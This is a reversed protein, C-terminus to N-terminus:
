IPTRGSWSRKLIEAIEHLSFSVPKEYPKGDVEWLRVLAYFCKLDFTRLIGVEVDEGHDNKVQGIVVKETGDQRELVRSKQPANSTSFIPWSEINREPRILERNVLEDKRKKLSQAM